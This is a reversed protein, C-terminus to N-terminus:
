DTRLAEMPGVRAARRAPLSGAGAASLALVVLAVTISAPDFRMDDSMAIDITRTAKSSTGAIGFATQRPAKASASPSTHGVHADDHARAAGATAAICALAVMWAAKM